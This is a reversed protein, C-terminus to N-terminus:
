HGPRAVDASRQWLFLRSLDTDALFISFSGVAIYIMVNSLFGVANMSISAAGLIGTPTRPDVVSPTQPHSEKDCVVIIM